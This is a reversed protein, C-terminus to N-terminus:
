WKTHGSYSSQVLEASSIITLSDDGVITSYIRGESIVYLYGGALKARGLEFTEELEHSEISGVSRFGGNELKFLEFRYCYDYGDFYGYPVGVYGNAPDTYMVSNDGLAKSVTDEDSVTVGAELVFGNDSRKIKELRLSGSGDKTLTVYGDGFKVLGATIDIDEGYETPVPNSPDSFDAASNEIGSFLVKSGDFSVKGASPFNAKSLVITRGDADGIANVSTVVGSETNKLLTTVFMTGNYEHIGGAVAVGEVAISDVFRAAGFELSLKQCVTYEVGNKESYGFVYVAKDTTIIKDKGETGLVAQVMVAMDPSGVAVGSIVTYDTTSIYEPIFINEPRIFIKQGNVSYNPVYSDLDDVGVIPSNRYKGYDTVLYVYGGKEKSDILTGKQSTSMAIFINGYSDIDYIVLEVSNTKVAGANDSYIGSLIGDVLSEGGEFAPISAPEENVVTYVAALRDGVPYFSELTKTEYLGVQPVADGIYTMKGGSVSVVKITSGDRVFIHNGSIVANDEELDECLEPLNVGVEPAPEVIPGPDVPQNSDTDPAPTVVTPDSVDPSDPDIDEHESSIYSHEIEAVASDLTKKDENDVYYKIFTHHLDDYNDAYGSGKIDSDTDIAAGTDLYRVLGLVMVACAAISAMARYAISIKSSRTKASSAAPSAPSVTIMSRKEAASANMKADLMAAINEPSLREPVPLSDLM